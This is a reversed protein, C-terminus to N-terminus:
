QPDDCLILGIGLYDIKFFTHRQMQFDCFYKEFYSM